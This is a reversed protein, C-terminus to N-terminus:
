NDGILIIERAGRFVLTSFLRALQEPPTAMKEGLWWDVMSLLSGNIFAAFADASAGERLRIVQNEVLNRVFRSTVEMSTRRIREVIRGSRANNLLLYYFSKNQYIHKFITEIPPAGTEQSPIDPNLYALWVSTQTESLLQANTEILQMFEEMLLDEKDKYHLYFTARGINARETIEEVTIEDYDKEEILEGLAERLAERTRLVRRDPKETRSDQDMATGKM